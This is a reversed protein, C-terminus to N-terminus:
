ILVRSPGPLTFALPAGSLSGPNKIEEFIQQCNGLSVPTLQPKFTALVGPLFGVSGSFCPQRPKQKLTRLYMLLLKKAYPGSAALGCVCFHCHYAM